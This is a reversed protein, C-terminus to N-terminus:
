VSAISAKYGRHGPQRNWICPQPADAGRLLTMHRQILILGQNSPLFGFRAKYVGLLFACCTTARDMM